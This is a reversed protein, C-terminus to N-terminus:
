LSLVKQALRDAAIECYREEIEIGIAKRGLDKAARLTTGSGMFPDVITGAPPCSYQAIFRVLELPKQTPHLASGQENQCRVVSRVLRLGDDVYGASGIAGRHPTEGRSRVSKSGGSRKVRPTDHYSASWAGQYWHTVLEHVRLFREVAFGSGNQKEWVLDQGLKWGDFESANEVFFRLSGFCWLDRVQLLPLWGEARSDWACSTEGYPPDTICVEVAIDDLMERCDGHYIVIGDAEYYPKM